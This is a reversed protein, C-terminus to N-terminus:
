YVQERETQWKLGTQKIFDQQREQWSRIKAASEATDQGAAQMTANERKWRRIQRENYRQVQCAEYETLHKGNYAYKKANYVPVPVM